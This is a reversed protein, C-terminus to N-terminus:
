IQKYGYGIIFSFHYEPKTTYAKTQNFNIGIEYSYNGNDKMYYECEDGNSLMDINLYDNSSNITLLNYKGDSTNETVYGTVILATGLNMVALGIKDQGSLSYSSESFIQLTYGDPTTINSTTLGSNFKVNYNNVEVADALEEIKESNEVMRKM